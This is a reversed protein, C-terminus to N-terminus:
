RRPSPWGRDRAAAPARRRAHPARSPPRRSSRDPSVRRAAGADGSLVLERGVDTGFIVGYREVGVEGDCPLPYCMLDFGEAADNARMDRCFVGEACPKPCDIGLIFTNARRRLYHEDRHGNAFVHDLLLIAHLDCPHVGVLVTPTDDYVAKTVFTGREKEFTFLTDHPPFLIGKPGYVCYNFSLDLAAARDVQQYFYRDERRVPGVMRRSRGLEDVRELLTNTSLVRDLM